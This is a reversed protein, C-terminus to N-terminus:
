LTGGEAPKATGRGLLGYLLGGVLLAAGALAGQQFSSGTFLWGCVVLALVPIFAGGPLTFGTPMSKTRRRLALVALCTTAYMLLRALASLAALPAFASSMALVWGAVAYLWISFAPTRHVPHLQAMRAPLQGDRGLAYLLRPGVFLNVHNTGMTSVVAGATLLLAGGPGLFSRAASALPTASAALGPLAAMAVVHIALYLVVVFGVSAFLARPLTKRPDIVEETPISANEFGGLAFLLLLSAQQLSSAKPAPMALIPHFDLFYAGALCFAFLPVLKGVTLINNVVTGVRVGIFHIFALTGIMFTIAGLRGVGHTLEPWFYGLYDSFTNSVAAVATLRALVYLWAVEFGVLGGFAARAYVYAGGTSEFRSGLEAFCSAILLVGAGAALYALPGAGGLLQAVTAPLAFIGAGIITNISLATLSVLGVARV